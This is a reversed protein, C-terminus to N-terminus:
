NILFTSQLNQYIMLIFTIETRLTQLCKLKELFVSAKSYLAFLSSLPNKKIYRCHLYFTNKLISSPIKFVNLLASQWIYYEYIYSSHSYSTNMM